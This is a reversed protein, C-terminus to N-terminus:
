KNRFRAIIVGPIALRLVQAALSTKAVNPPPSRKSYRGIALNLKRSGALGCLIYVSYRSRGNRGINSHVFFVLGALGLVERYHRGKSGGRRERWPSFQTDVCGCM